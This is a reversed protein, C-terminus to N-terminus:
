RSSRRPPIPPLTNRAAVGQVPPRLGDLAVSLMREFQADDEFVGRSIGVIMHLIDGLTVDDRLVGAHQARRLIPEGAAFIAERGAHFMPSDRDIGDQMARKTVDYGVFRRLWGVISEWPPLESVEATAACLQEVEEVFIANYLHQRTPFNRYLTGIGVRAERAIDELSAGPGHAAFTTRAAALLADFNRAADARAPRRVGAAASVATGTM